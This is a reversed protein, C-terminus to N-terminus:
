FDDIHQVAINRYYGVQNNKKKKKKKVLCHRERDQKFLLRSRMTEAFTESVDWFGLLEATYAASLTNQRM